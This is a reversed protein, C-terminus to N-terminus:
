KKSEKLYNEIRKLEAHLGENDIKSLFDFDRRDMKNRKLYFQIVEDDMELVKDKKEAKETKITKTYIWNPKSSHLRSLIRSWTDMVAVQNVGIINFNNAESPYKISIFRQAMFFHKKKEANTCAKYRGKDFLCDIFDFLSDGAM